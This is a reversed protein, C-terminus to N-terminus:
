WAINNLLYSYDTNELVFTIIRKTNSKRRAVTSDSLVTRALEYYDANGKKANYILTKIFPNRLALRRLIQTKDHKNLLISFEGFKTNSAIFVHEKRLGVLEFAMATKAHNEGYKKCAGDLRSNVLIRGLETFSKEGKTSIIKNVEFIADDFNSFQIIDLVSYEYNKDILSVFDEIPTAILIESLTVFDDKEGNKFIESSNFSCELFEIKFAEESINSM